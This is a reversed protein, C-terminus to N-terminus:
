KEQEKAKKRRDQFFKELRYLASIEDQVQAGLDYDNKPNNLIQLREQRAISFLESLDKESIELLWKAHNENLILM